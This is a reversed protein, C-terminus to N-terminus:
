AVKEQGGVMPNELHGVGNRKEFGTGEDPMDEDDGEMQALARVDAMSKEAFNTDGQDHEHEHGDVDMDDQPTLAPPTEAPPAPPPPPPPPAEVALKKMPSKTPDEEEHKVTPSSDIRKRKLSAQTESPTEPTPKELDHEEMKIDEDDDSEEKKLEYPSIDQSAEPSMAAPTNTEGKSAKRKARDDEHKKHKQAAKDFYQKCFEKVKKQQKDDVKTPDKVRGAKFDSSVLKKAIEKAFRKLDDRPIKQKYKNMVHSIHPFLQDLDAVARRYRFLHSM